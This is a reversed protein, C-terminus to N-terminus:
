GPLITYVNIPGGLGRLTNDGTQCHTTTISMSNCQKHQKGVSESPRIRSELIDPLRLLTEELPREGCSEVNSRSEGVGLSGRGRRCSWLSGRDPFRLFTLPSTADSYLCILYELVSESNM